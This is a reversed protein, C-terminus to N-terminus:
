LVQECRMPSGKGVIVIEGSVGGHVDVGRERAVM